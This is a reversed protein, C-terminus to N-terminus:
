ASEIKDSVTSSEDLLSLDFELAGLYHKLNELVAMQHAERSLGFFEQMGRVSACTNDTGIGVGGVVPMLVHMQNTKPNIYVYRAGPPSTPETLSIRM